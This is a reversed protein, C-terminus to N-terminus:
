SGSVVSSMAVNIVDTFASGKKRSCPTTMTKLESSGRNMSVPAYSLRTRTKSRWTLANSAM